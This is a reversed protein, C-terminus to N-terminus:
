DKHVVGNVLDVKVKVAQKDDSRPFEDHMGNLVSVQFDYVKSRAPKINVKGNTVKIDMDASPNEIELAGNIGRIQTKLAVPIYLDCKAMDMKDLNFTMVGADVSVPALAAGISKCDWKFTSGEVVLALRATNFPIKLLSINKVDEEGSATVSKGGLNIQMDHGPDDGSRLELHGNKMSGNVTMGGIKVTDTEENVDILGGLLTVRGKAEDVHILPSFYWIMFVTSAIAFAMLGAVGLAFIRLWNRAPSPAWYKVGKQQLYREAVERPTGMDSILSQISKAPDKEGAELIHSRIETIIEARQGTPLAQLERDLQSLYHELILEKNM